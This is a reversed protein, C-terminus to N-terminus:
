DLDKRRVVVYGRDIANPGKEEEEEFTNDDDRFVRRRKRPTVPPNLDAREKALISVLEVGIKNGMLDYGDPTFHIADDWYRTRDAESLAFYPFAANFDFKYFGEQEHGKILDNLANRRADLRARGAAGVGAEPVTLALVKSKRSLAVDWVEKLREYIEEAPISFAIDNTGGLVIAWDFPEEPPDTTEFHRRMRSLFGHKVTDGSKGDELTDIDTDPFAMELMQTLRDEYPQFVSGMGSYGATLSDGFCLIRLKQRPRGAMTM